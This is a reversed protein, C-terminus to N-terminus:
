SPQLLTRAKDTLEGGSRGQRTPTLLERRRAEAVYERIRGAPRDHEAALDAIPRPSQAGQDVYRAAWVAYFHDDRGARGPRPHTYDDNASDPALAALLQGIVGRTVERTLDGLRVARLQRATLGGPPVDGAPEIRCSSVVLQDGQRVFTATMTWDPHGPLSLSVPVPQGAYFDIELNAPRRSTM